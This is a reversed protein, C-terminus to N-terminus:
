PDDIIIVEPDIQALVGSADRLIVDYSWAVQRAPAPGKVAPGSLKYPMGWPITFPLGAFHGKSVSTAKEDITLTQGRQLGSPIWMVERAKGATPVHGQSTHFISTDGRRRPHCILSYQGGPVAPLVILTVESPPGVGPPGNSM